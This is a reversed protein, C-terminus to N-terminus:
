TEHLGTFLEIIMHMLRKRTFNHNMLQYIDSNNVYNWEPQLTGLERRQATDPKKGAIKLTNDKSSHKEYDNM